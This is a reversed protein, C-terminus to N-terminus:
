EDYEELMEQLLEDYTREFGKLRRLRNRTEKSVGLTTEMM